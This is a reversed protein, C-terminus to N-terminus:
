FLEDLWSYYYIKDWDPEIGLLEFFLEVYKECVLDERINRVCLAIDYWRDAIGGRGWDIYSQICNDNNVFINGDSIDGHSFVLEQEPINDNLYSILQDPTSFPTNGEYFDSEATLGKNQLYELESLRNSVTSDFLCTSIDINQIRKISDVYLKVTTEPPVDEFELCKGYAESMLLFRYEQYEEYYIISPVELQGQIWQLVNKERQVDYTTGKLDIHSIKLYRVSEQNTLKFVKAPSMGNKDRVIAYNEMLKKLEESIVEELIM